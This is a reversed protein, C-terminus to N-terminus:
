WVREITFIGYLYFWSGLVGLVVVQKKADGERMTAIIIFLAACV